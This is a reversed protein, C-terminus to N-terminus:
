QVGLCALMTVIILLLARIRCALPVFQFFAGSRFYCFRRNSKSFGFFLSLIFVVSSVQRVSAQPSVVDLQACFAVGDVSSEKALYPWANLPLIPRVYASDTSHYGSPTFGFGPVGLTRM